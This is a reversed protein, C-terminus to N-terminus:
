CGLFADCDADDTKKGDMDIYFCKEGVRVLATEGYFSEAEDFPGEIATAGQNNIFYIGGVEPYYAICLGNHFEEVSVFQAEIVFDGNTNIFGYYGNEFSVAAMSESFSKADGYQLDIVEQGDLNIYGYRGDIQVCAFGERFEEVSDYKCSAVIKNETSIFGYKNQETNTIIIRDESFGDFVFGGAMENMYISFYVDDPLRHIIGNTDCFGHIDDSCVPALGNQFSGAIKFQPELIVEGKYNKLGYLYDEGYFWGTEVVANDVPLVTEDIVEHSMSETTGASTQDSQCSSVFLVTSASFFSWFLKRM